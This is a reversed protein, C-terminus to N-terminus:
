EMNWRMSQEAEKYMMIVRVLQYLYSASLSLISPFGSLGKPNGTFDGDMTRVESDGKKVRM